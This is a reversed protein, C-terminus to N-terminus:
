CTYPYPVSIDTPVIVHDAVTLLSFGLAEAQQAFRVL